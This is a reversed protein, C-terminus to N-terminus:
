SLRDSGKVSNTFAEWDDGNFYLVHGFVTKSDRVVILRLTNQGVEVCAGQDASYSSKRLTASLLWPKEVKPAVGYERIFNM